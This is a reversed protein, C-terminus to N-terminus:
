LEKIELKSQDSKILSKIEMSFKKSDIPQLKLCFENFILKMKDKNILM